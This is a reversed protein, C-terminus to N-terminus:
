AFLELHVRAPARGPRPVLASVRGALRGRLAPFLGVFEAAPVRGLRRGATSFVEAGAADRSPRLEVAEGLSPPPEATETLYTLWRGKTM